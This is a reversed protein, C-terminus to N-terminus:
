SDVNARSPTREAIHTGDEADAINYGPQQPAHPGEVALFLLSMGGLVLIFGRREPSTM